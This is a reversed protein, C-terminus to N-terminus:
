GSTRRQYTQESQILGLGQLISSSVSYAAHLRLRNDQSDQSVKLMRDYLNRRLAQFEAAQSGAYMDIVVSLSLETDIEYQKLLERCQVELQGLCQHASIRHDSLQMIQDANIQRIAEYEAQTISELERACVNMKELLDYLQQLAEAPLETFPHSLTQISTQHMVM